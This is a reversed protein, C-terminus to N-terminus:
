RGPEKDRRRRARLERAAQAKACDRSCYRTGITRHQGYKARGRQRTFLRGHPCRENACERFPTEVALDNLLQLAAVSYATPGPVVMSRRIGPVDVRPQFASVATTLMENFVFWAPEPYDSWLPDVDEDRQWARLHAALRRLRLLRERVEVVHVLRPRWEAFPGSDWLNMREAHVGLERNASHVQYEYRGPLWGAAHARALAMDFAADGGIDRHLFDSARGWQAVFGALAAPDDLETADPERLYFDVPVEVERIPGHLLLCFDDLREVEAPVDVAPPETSGGPWVTPRYRPSM